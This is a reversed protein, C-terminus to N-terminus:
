IDGGRVPSPWEGARELDRAGDAAIGLGGGVRFAPLSAGILTLLAEDIFTAKALVLFVTLTVVRAPRRRETAGRIRTFALFFPVALFADVVATLTVIFTVYETVGVM